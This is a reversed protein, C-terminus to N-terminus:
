RMCLPIIREEGGAVPTTVFYCPNWGRDAIVTTVTQWREPSMAPTRSLVFGSARGPSGVIATRKDESMWTVRYNSPGDPTQFPIGDFWVRLSAKTETDKIQAHGTIGTPQGFWNTCRNTVGVTDDSEHTYTATTDRACQIQTIQPLIAVQHWTGLYEDVDLKDIQVLDIPAALGPFIGFSSQAQAAPAVAASAGIVATTLLVSSIIRRTFSMDEGYLVDNILTRSIVFVM